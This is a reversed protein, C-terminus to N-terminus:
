EQYVWAVNDSILYYSNKLKYIIYNGKCLELFDDWKEITIIDKGLFELNKAEIVTLKVNIEKKM